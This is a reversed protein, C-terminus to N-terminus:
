VIIGDHKSASSVLDVGISADMGLSWYWIGKVQYEPLSDSNNSQVESRCCELTLVNWLGFKAAEITLWRDVMSHDTGNESDQHHKSDALSTEQDHSLLSICPFDDTKVMLVLGKTIAVDPNTGAFRCMYDLCLREHDLQPWIWDSPTHERVLLYCFLANAHETSPWSELRTNKDVVDTAWVNLRDPPRAFCGYDRHFKAIDRM